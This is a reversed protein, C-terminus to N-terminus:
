HNCSKTANDFIEYLRTELNSVKKGNDDYFDFLSEYFGLFM